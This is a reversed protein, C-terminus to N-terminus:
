RMWAHVRVNSICRGRSNGLVVAQLDSGVLTSCRFVYLVLSSSLSCCGPCSVHSLVVGIRTVISFFSIGPSHFGILLYIPAHRPLVRITQRCALICSFYFDKMSGQVFFFMQAEKLIRGRRVLSEPRTILRRSSLRTAFMPGAMIQRILGEEHLGRSTAECSERLRRPAGRRPPKLSAALCSRSNKTSPGRVSSEVFADRRMCSSTEFSELLPGKAATRSLKM